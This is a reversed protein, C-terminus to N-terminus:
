FQNGIEFQFAETEDFEDDNLASSISFISSAILITYFVIKKM